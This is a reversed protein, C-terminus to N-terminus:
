TVFKSPLLVLLKIMQQLDSDSKKQRYLEYEENMLEKCAKVTITTSDVDKLVSDCELWM